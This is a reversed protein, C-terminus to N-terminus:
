NVGENRQNLQKKIEAARQEDIEYDRMVYIAFLTGVVPITSYAIRLGTFPAKLSHQLM